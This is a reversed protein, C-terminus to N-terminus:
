GGGMAKKALHDLHGGRSHCVRPEIGAKKSLIKGSETLGTVQFKTSWHSGQCTGPTIQDSSPSTPRTDAYQSQTVYFTPDAVETENYYCMFNDSCIRGQSVSAYQQSTLCALLLGSVGKAQITIRVRAWKQSSLINPLNKGWQRGFACNDALSFLVVVRWQQLSHLFPRWSKLRWNNRKLWPPM